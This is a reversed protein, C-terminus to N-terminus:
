DHDESRIQERLQQMARQTMSRVASNSCGLAEAIQAETMDVYYRLFLVARQRPPLTLLIRWVADRESVTQTVDPEVDGRGEYAAYNRATKERRHRARVLNLITRYLYGGFLEPQRLDRFRGALRVFAEQVLDEATSRDQTLLYAMRLADNSHRQYLGELRTDSDGAM